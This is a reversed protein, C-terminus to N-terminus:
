LLLSLGISGVEILLTWLLIKTTKARNIRTAHYDLNVILLTLLLIGGIFVWINRMTIVIYTDQTTVGPESTHAVIFATIVTLIDQLAFFAVISLISTVLILLVNLSKRVYDPMDAIAKTMNM